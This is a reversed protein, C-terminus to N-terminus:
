GRFSAPHGYCNYNICYVKEKEIKDRKPVSCQGPPHNDKCKVCRFNMNCNAATHGLRQCRRCQTTETKNPKEWHVAQYAVFEISHLRSPQSDRSLQVLVIPLAKDNSRSLKTSFCQVRVFQM